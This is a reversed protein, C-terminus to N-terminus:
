QEIFDCKMNQWRSIKGNKEDYYSMMSTTLPNGRYATMVYNNNGNPHPFQIKFFEPLSSLKTFLRHHENSDPILDWSFSVHIKKAVRQRHLLADATRFAKADIDEESYDFSSPTPIWEGDIRLMGKFVM